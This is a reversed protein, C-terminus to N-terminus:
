LELMLVAARESRISGAKSMVALICDKKHGEVDGVFARFAKLAHRQYLWLLPMSLQWQCVVVPLSPVWLYDMKMKKFIRCNSGDM